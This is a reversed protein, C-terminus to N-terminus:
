PAMNFPTGAFTKIMHSRQYEQNFKTALGFDVYKVHNNKFMINSPKIDRHVIHYKRISKMGKVLECFIDM